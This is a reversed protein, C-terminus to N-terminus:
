IENGLRLYVANDIGIVACIILIKEEPLADDPFDIDYTLYDDREGKKGIKFDKKLVNGSILNTTANYILFNTKNRECIYFTLVVIHVNDEM